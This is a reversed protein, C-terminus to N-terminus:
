KMLNEIAKISGLLRSSKDRAEYYREQLDDVLDPYERRLREYEEAEGMVSLLEAKYQNLKARLEQTIDLRGVTVTTQSDASAMEDLCWLETKQFLTRKSESSDVETLFGKAVLAKVVRYIWLRLKIKDKTADVHTLYLNRLEVVSFEDGVSTNLLRLLSPDVKMKNMM